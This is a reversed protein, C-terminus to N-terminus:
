SILYGLESLKNEIPLVTCYLSFFTLVVGIRGPLKNKCHELEDQMPTSGLVVETSLPTTEM